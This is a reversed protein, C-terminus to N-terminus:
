CQEAMVLMPVQMVIPTSEPMVAAVKETLGTNFRCLPCNKMEQALLCCRCMAVYFEKKEKENM